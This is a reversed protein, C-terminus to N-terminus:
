MVQGAWLPSLANNFNFNTGQSATGFFVGANTTLYGICTLAYQADSVGGPNSPNAASSYGLAELAALGNGTGNIETNLNVAAEALKRWGVSLNTLIQDVAGSSLQNGVSM